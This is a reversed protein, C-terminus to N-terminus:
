VDLNRVYLANQEIFERRPEVQDGMLVSFITDAEVADEVRVQLLSRKEPNLTTEWLQSPNMEGLGKYRQIYHGKRGVALIQAKLEQLDNIQTEEGDFLITYPPAGFDRFTERLKLLEKMEPSDLLDFDLLTVRSCGGYITKYTIS